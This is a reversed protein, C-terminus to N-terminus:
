LMFLEVVVREAPFRGCFTETDNEAPFAM